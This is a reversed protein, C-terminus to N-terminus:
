KLIPIDPDADKWLTLFDQYAARAKEKGGAAGLSRGLGLHALSGLPSNGVIDTHDLIRQFEASADKSQGATLLGYGRLYLVALPAIGFPTPFGLEYGQAARLLELAKGSNHQNLEIAAGVMPLWYTNVITDQPFEKLVADQM